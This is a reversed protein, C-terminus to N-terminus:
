CISELAGSFFWSEITFRDAYEKETFYKADLMPLCNTVKVDKIDAPLEHLKSLFLRAEAAMMGSFIHDGSKVLKLAEEVTILKKKYDM